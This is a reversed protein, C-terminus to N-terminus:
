ITKGGHMVGRTVNFDLKSQIVDELDIGLMEALDLARIVADALEVPFGEPKKDVVYVHTVDHGKRLEEVAESLESTVLAIKSIVHERLGDTDSKSKLEIYRDHWGNRYASTGIRKQLDKFDSM